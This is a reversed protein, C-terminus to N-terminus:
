DPRAAGDRLVRQILRRQDQSLEPPLEDPKFWAVRKIEMSQPEPPVVGRPRCRFMIEVQTPKKLTRAFAIEASELELGIEERLERRLAELPDEGKNIFGGPIGWGSGARFRHHLLLVRGEADSVVAGATVMFRAQTLRVAGRRLSKPAHRWLAGLMGKFM